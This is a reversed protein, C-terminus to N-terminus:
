GRATDETEMTMQLLARMVETPKLKGDLSPTARRLEKRRRWRATTATRAAPSRVADLGVLSTSESAELLLLKEQAELGM